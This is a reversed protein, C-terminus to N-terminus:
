CVWTTASVDRFAQLFPLVGHMEALCFWVSLIREPRFPRNAYSSKREYLHARSLADTQRLIAQRCFSETGKM